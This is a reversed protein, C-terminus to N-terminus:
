MNLQMVPRVEVSGGIETIPCGSALQAAQDLDKAEVVSFGGVVDKTESYPGDTITKSKGGVVKGVRELPQGPNKLYGKDGLDKFWAQWKKISQQAKEPSSFTERYAEQSNRYLFLFEAM